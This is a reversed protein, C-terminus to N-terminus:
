DGLAEAKRVAEDTLFVTREDGHQVVFETAAAPESGCAAAWIAAAQPHTGARALALPQYNDLDENVPADPHRGTEVFARLIAEAGDAPDIEELSAGPGVAARQMFRARLDTRTVLIDKAVQGTPYDILVGVTHRGSGDYSCELMVSAQFGFHDAYRWARECRASGVANAWGAPQVGDALLHSAADRNRDAARLWGEDQLAMGAQAMQAIANLLMVAEPKAGQVAYTLFDGGVHEAVIEPPAGLVHAAAQWSSLLSCALLDADFLSRARYANGAQRMIAQLAPDAHRADAIAANRSVVITPRKPAKRGKAKSTM